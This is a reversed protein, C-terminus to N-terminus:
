YKIEFLVFDQLDNIETIQVNEVNSFSPGDKIEAIFLEIAEKNGQCVIEVKNDITNKVYGKIDYINAKASAFYRFGVGQVRGSVLLKFKKNEEM